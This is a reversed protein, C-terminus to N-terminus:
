VRTIVATLRGTASVLAAFPDRLGHILKKMMPTQREFNGM